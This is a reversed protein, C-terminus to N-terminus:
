KERTLEIRRVLTNEPLLAGTGAIRDGDVVLRWASHVRANRFESTWSGDSQLGYDMVGMTGREGGVVKDAQVRVRDAARAVASIEYIVREDKCAPAAELDVCTSTGKWTGVIKKQASDDASVSAAAALALAFAIAPRRTM